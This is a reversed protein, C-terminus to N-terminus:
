SYDYEEEGKTNNRVISNRSIATRRTLSIMFCLFDYVNCVRDLLQERQPTLREPVQQAMIELGNYRVKVVGFEMSVRCGAYDASAALLWPPIRRSPILGSFILPCSMFQAEGLIDGISRDASMTGSSWASHIIKFATDLTQLNDDACLVALDKRLGADSLILEVTESFAPFSECYCFSRMHPPIKRNNKKAKAGSNVLLINMSKDVKHYEKDIIFQQEFKIQLDKNWTSKNNLTNRAQYNFKIQQHLDRLCLDDVFADEQASLSFRDFGGSLHADPAMCQVAARCIKAVAYYSEYRNGKQNNRGGTGMNILKKKTLVGFRKEVFEAVSM